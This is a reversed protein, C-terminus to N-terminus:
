KVKVKVKFKIEGRTDWFTSFVGCQEQAMRLPIGFVELAM